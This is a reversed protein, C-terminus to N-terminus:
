SFFTEVVLFEVLRGVLPWKGEFDHNITVRVLGGPLEEFEWIARM